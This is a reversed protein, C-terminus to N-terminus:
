WVQLCVHRKFLCTLGMGDVYPINVYMQNIKITFTPFYVMCPNNPFSHWGYWGRPGTHTPSKGLVMMPSKRFDKTWLSSTSLSWSNDHELSSAIRYFTTPFVPFISWFDWPWGGPIYIFGHYIIPYVALRLQNCYGSQEMLLLIKLWQSPSIGQDGPAESWCSSFVPLDHSWKKQHNQKLYQSSALVRPM